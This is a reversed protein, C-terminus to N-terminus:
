VNLASTAILWKFLQDGATRSDDVKATFAVTSEFLGEEAQGKFNLSLGSDTTASYIIVEMDFTTETDDTYHRLRLAFDTMEISSDGATIYSSAAPTYDYDITVSQAETTVTASDIIFIGRNGNEDQGAYYDTDAVIAGNTGLTVSNITIAGLDSNQNAIKIFKNYKWSGSAIVQEAGEVLAGAVATRDYIGGGLKEYIATDQSWLASPAVSLTQNKIKKLINKANGADILEEEWNHTLVVGASLLGLDAWTALADTSISLNVGDPLMYKKVSTQRAM